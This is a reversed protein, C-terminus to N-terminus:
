VMEFGLDKFVGFSGKYCSCGKSGSSLWHGELGKSSKCGKLSKPRGRGELGRIHKLCAKYGLPGRSGYSGKSM